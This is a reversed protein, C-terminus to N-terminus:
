KYGMRQNLNSLSKYYVSNKVGGWSVDRTSAKMNKEAFELANVYDDYPIKMKNFLNILEERPNKTLNEYHIVFSNLCNKEFDLIKNLMTEAQWYILDQKSTTTIEKWGIPRGGWLANKNYVWQTTTFLYLWDLIKFQSARFKLRNWLRTRTHNESSMKETSKLISRIDRYIFVFRADPYLHRIYLLRLSNSPTKDCLIKKGSKNLLDKFRNKIVKDRYKCSSHNDLEDHGQFWRGWMWIHAPEGLYEIGNVERLIHGLWTTGSRHLGVIIIPKENDMM